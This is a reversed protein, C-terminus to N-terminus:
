LMSSFPFPSKSEIGITYFRHFILMIKLRKAYHPRKLSDKSISLHPITCYAVSTLQEDDGITYTFVQQEDPIWGSKM